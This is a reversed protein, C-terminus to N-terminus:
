KKELINCVTNTYIAVTRNTENNRIADYISSLCGVIVKKSNIAAYQQITRKNKPIEVLQYGDRIIRSKLYDKTTTAM